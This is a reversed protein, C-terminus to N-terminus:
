NSRGWEAGREVLSDLSAQLEGLKEDVGSKEPAVYIPAAYTFLAKTFPIPIQLRDWSKVTWYSKCEVSFPLIPNGTKQALLVPGAKAEYRPGRPGDVTFATPLGRRMSRIM